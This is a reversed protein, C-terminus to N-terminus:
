YSKFEKEFEGLDHEWMEAESIKRVHKLETELKEIAKKLEELKQKSFSRIQMNLLYKFEEDGDVCV